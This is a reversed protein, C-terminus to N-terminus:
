SNRICVQLIPKLGDNEINKDSKNDMYKKEVIRMFCKDTEM